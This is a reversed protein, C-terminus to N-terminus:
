SLHLYINVPPTKDDITNTAIGDSIVAEIRIKIQAARTGTHGGAIM